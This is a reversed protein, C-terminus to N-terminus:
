VHRWGVSRFDLMKAYPFKLWLCAYNLYPPHLNASPLCSSGGLGVFAKVVNM